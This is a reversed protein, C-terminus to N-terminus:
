TDQAGLDDLHETKINSHAQDAVSDQALCNSALLIAGRVYVYNALSRTGM